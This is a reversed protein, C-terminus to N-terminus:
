NWSIIKILNKVESYFVERDPEALRNLIEGVRELCKVYLQVTDHDLARRRFRSSGSVEMIQRRMIHAVIKLCLIYCAENSHSELRNLM